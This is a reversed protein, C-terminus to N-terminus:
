RRFAPAACRFFAAAFRASPGDRDSEGGRPAATDSRRPCHRLSSCQPRAQPDKFGIEETFRPHLRYAAISCPPSGYAVTLSLGPLFSASLISLGIV